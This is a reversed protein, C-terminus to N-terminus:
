AAGDGAKPGVLPLRVRFHAGQTSDVLEITGGHAEVYDKAISLGLGTGKVSSAHPSSRKPCLARRPSRPSSGAVQPM